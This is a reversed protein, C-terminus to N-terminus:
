LSVILFHATVGAFPFLFKLVPFSYRSMVIKLPLLYKANWDLEFGDMFQDDPGSDFKEDMRTMNINDGDENVVDNIV